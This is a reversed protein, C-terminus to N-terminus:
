ANCPRPGWSFHQEEGAFLEAIYMALFARDDSMGLFCLMDHVEAEDFSRAEVGGRKITYCGWKHLLTVSLPIM